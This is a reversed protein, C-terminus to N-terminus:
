YYGIKRFLGGIIGLKLSFIGQKPYLDPHKLFKQLSGVKRKARWRVATDAQLNIKRILGENKLALRWKDITYFQGLYTDYFLGLKENEVMLITYEM